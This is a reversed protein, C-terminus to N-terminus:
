QALEREIRALLSEAHAGVPLAIMRVSECLKKADLLLARASDREARLRLVGGAGQAKELADAAAELDENVFRGSPIDLVKSWSRLLEVLSKDRNM